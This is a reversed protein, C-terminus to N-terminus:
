APRRAWVLMSAVAGPQDGAGIDSGRYTHLEEFAIDCFGAGELLERYRDLPMAGAICGAWAELSPRLADGLPEVEVMDAVCFRGGPRMVRYAERLATVKDTSLNLVCNSIVVDVAQDPLPIAEIHGRLFHANRLGARQRNRQALALMEDTMDLGYVTGEAGVRRAALLVDLGAGCGLDLVVEGSRLEAKAVPHGCGLSTGEVLAAQRLDEPSYVVLPEIGDPASTCCGGGAALGGDRGMTRALTAYRRRVADRIEAGEQGGAM